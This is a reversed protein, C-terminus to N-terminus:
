RGGGVPSSQASVHSHASAVYMPSNSCYSSKVAFLLHSKINQCMSRIVEARLFHTYVSPGSDKGAVDVYISGLLDLASSM